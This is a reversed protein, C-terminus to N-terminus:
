DRGVMDGGVYRIGGVVDEMNWICILMICLKLKVRVM